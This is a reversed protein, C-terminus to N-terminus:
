GFACIKDIIQLYRVKLLLNYNNASIATLLSENISWYHVALTQVCNQASVM